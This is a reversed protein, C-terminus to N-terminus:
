VDDDDDLLNADLFKRMAVECAIEGAVTSAFRIAADEIEDVSSDDTNIVDELTDGEDNNM